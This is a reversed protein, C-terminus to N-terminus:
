LDKKERVAIIEATRQTIEVALRGCASAGFGALRSVTSVFAAGQVDALALYILRLLRRAENPPGVLQYLIKEIQITHQRLHSDFRHLRFQVPFPTSEWFVSPAVMEPDTIERFYHLVRRHLDRYYNLLDSFRGTEHLDDFQDAAVSWFADWGEDSLALPLEQGGSAARMREVAYCSIAFFARETSLIHELTDRLSWEPEQDKVPEGGEIPLNAKVQSVPEIREPRQDALDDGVGLLLAHMDQYARHYQALRHQAQTPPYGLQRRQIYLDAALDCLDEYTRFFALRVGEDYEGWSWPLELEDDTMDLTAAAFTEVAKQLDM